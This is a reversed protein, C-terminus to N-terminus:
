PDDPRCQGIGYGDFGFGRWYFVLWVWQSVRLRSGRGGFYCDILLVPCSFQLLFSFYDGLLILFNM